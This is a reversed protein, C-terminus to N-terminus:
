PGPEAGPATNTMPSTAASDAVFRVSSSSPWPNETETHNPPKWTDNLKLKMPPRLPVSLTGAAREQQLWCEVVWEWGLCDRCVSPRAGILRKMQNSLAFGDPYGLDIAIAFLSTPTTQLRIVANLIRGIHLWHSPVPLGRTMFRRGLARRSLYLARSLGSISSVEPALDVTRQILRRTDTDLRMGRWTLYDTLAISLRPPPLKMAVMLTDPDPEPDYPLISQPNCMDIRDVIHPYSGLAEAPPLMVLLATGPPRHRALQWDTDPDGAAMCWLVGVGKPVETAPECERLDVPTIHNYPPAFAYFPQSAISEWSM